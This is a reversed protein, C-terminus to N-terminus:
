PKIFGLMLNYYRTSSFDMASIHYSKNDIIYGGRLLQMAGANEPVLKVEGPKFLVNKRAMRWNYCIGSFRRKSENYYMYFITRSMLNHSLLSLVPCVVLSMIMFIYRSQEDFTEDATLAYGCVFFAANTLVLAMMVTIMSYTTIYYIRRSHKYM